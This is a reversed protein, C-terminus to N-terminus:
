RLFHLKNSKSPHNLPQSDLLFLCTYPARSMPFTSGRHCRTGQIGLVRPYLKTFFELPHILPWFWALEGCGELGQGVGFHPCPISSPPSTDEQLMSIPTLLSSFRTASQPWSVYCWTLRSAPGPLNTRGGSKLHHWCVAASSNGRMRSGFDPELPPSRQRKLTVAQEPVVYPPCSPVPWRVSEPKVDPLGSTHPM